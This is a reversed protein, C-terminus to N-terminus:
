AIGNAYSVTTITGLAGDGADVHIHIQGMLVLSGVHAPEDLHQRGVAGGEVDAIDDREGLLQERAEIGALGVSALCSAVRAALESEELNLHERLPYAVNEYVSLPLGVPLPFVMGIRRRIEVPDVGDGYINEGHYMVEGEVHATPILDNMRNFCRLLTSKGCGSPGILAVVKNAPIVLSVDKVAQTEGYFVSLDRAELAPARGGTDIDHVTAM